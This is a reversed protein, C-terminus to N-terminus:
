ILVQKKLEYIDDPLYDIGGFEKVVVSKIKKKIEPKLNTITMEGAGGISECDDGILINPM